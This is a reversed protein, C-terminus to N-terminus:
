RLVTRSCTNTVEDSYGAHIKLLPVGAALAESDGLVV